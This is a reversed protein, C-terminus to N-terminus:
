TPSDRGMPSIHITSGPVHALEFGCHRGDITHLV